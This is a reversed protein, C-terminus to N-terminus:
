ETVEEFVLLLSRTRDQLEDFRGRGAGLAAERTALAQLRAAQADDMAAEAEWALDNSGRISVWAEVLPRLEALRMVYQLRLTKAGELVQPDDRNSFYADLAGLLDEMLPELEDKTYEFYLLEQEYRALIGDIEDM